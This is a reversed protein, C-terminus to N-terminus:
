ASSNRLYMSPARSEIKLPALWMSGNSFGSSTTSAMVSKRSADYSERRRSEDRPSFAKLGPASPGRPENGRVEAILAEVAQAWEELSVREADITGTTSPISRFHTWLTYIAREVGMASLLRRVVATDLRVAFRLEQTHVGSETRLHTQWTLLTGGGALPELHPNSTPM